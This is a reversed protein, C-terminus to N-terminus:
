NGGIQKRIVDMMHDTFETIQERAARNNEIITNIDSESLEDITRGNILTEKGHQYQEFTSLVKQINDYHQKEILVASNRIQRKAAHVSRMFARLNSRTASKWLKDVQENLESLALWLENYLRFQGEFYLSFTIKQRETERYLESKIAEIESAYKLKDTELIRNAWVKGLWSSFAAVILASGGLSSLIAASVAFVDEINM